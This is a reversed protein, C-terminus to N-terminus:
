DVQLYPKVKIFICILFAFLLKLWDRDRIDDLVFLDKKVWYKDRNMWATLGFSCEDEVHMQINTHVSYRWQWIVHCGTARSEGLGRETRSERPSIDSVLRFPVSSIQWHLTRIQHGFAPIHLLPYPISFILKIQFLLTYSPININYISHLYM